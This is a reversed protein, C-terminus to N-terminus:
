VSNLIWRGLGLVTLVARLLIGATLIHGVARGFDTELLDAAVGSVFVFVFSLGLTADWLRLEPVVTFLLVACFAIILPASNGFYRARPWSGYTTLAAIFLLAFLYSGVSLTRSLDFFGDAFVFNLGQLM